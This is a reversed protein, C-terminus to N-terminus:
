STLAAGAAAYDDDSNGAGVGAGRQVFVSHGRRVLADVGAPTIATRNENNKVETPIAVKMPHEKKTPKDRTTRGLRHEKHSEDEASFGTEPLPILVVIASVPDCHPLSTLISYPELWIM